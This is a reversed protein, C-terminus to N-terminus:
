SIRSSKDTALFFINKKLNNLIIFLFFLFILIPFYEFINLIKFFYKKINELKLKEKKEKKRM